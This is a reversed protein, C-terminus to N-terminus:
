LKVFQEIRSGAASQTQIWYVGAPLSRVDWRLSNEFDASRLLRSNSDYLSIRSSAGLDENTSIEIFDSVPNPQISFAPANGPKSTGVLPGSFYRAVAFDFNYASYTKEAVIGSCYIKGSSASEPLYAIDLSYNLPHDLNSKVLGNDGFDTDPSSDANLRRLTFDVFTDNGDFETKALLIKGDPQLAIGEIVQNEINLDGMLVGNDGFGMDAAGSGEFRYLGFNDNGDNDPLIASLLIKGDPQLLLNNPMVQSGGAGVILVKGGTGFTNDLTGNANYRAIAGINPINTLQANGAAVIKGDPQIAVDVCGDNQVFFDTVVAGATGFSNDAAGNALLRLLLFDRGFQGRVGAIVIKGDAQVAVAAVRDYATNFIKIGTGNFTSDLTGNTKLRLLIIKPVFSADLTNAAALIKGDTQVVMDVLEERTSVLGFPFLGDTSFSMDLTGDVDFRAILCGRDENRIVNGGVLVKGDPQVALCTPIDNGKEMYATAVGDFSFAADPTGDPLYRHITFVPPFTTSPVALNIAGNSSLALDPTASYTNTTAQNTLLLGNTGFSNDPSGDPLYQLLALQAPYNLAGAMVIKGDLRLAASTLVNSVLGSNIIVKGGNGFSNDLSGDTNYRALLPHEYSYGVAVIKGDPQLLVTCPFESDGPSFETLVKGGTGFTSDLTGNPLYRLLAFDAKNTDNYASGLAVIKGDPQVALSSIADSSGFFDISVYGNTGFTNDLTGDPMLRALVFDYNGGNFQAAGALLIKGNSQLGIARGLATAFGIDTTGKDGFDLDPTGDANLRAVRLSYNELALIKGDPQVVMDSLNEPSGFLATGNKGFSPDLAGGPTFRALCFATYTNGGVLIKGDPLVAISRADASQNSYDLTAFGSGGFSPDLTGPQALSKSSLACLLFFFFHKM